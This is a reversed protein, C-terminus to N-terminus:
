RMVCKFTNIENEQEKSKANKIKKNKKKSNTTNKNPLSKGELTSLPFNLLNGGVQPKRNNNNYNKSSMALM